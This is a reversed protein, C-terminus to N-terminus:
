LTKTATAPSVATAIRAPYWTAVTVCVLLVASCLLPLWWNLAQLSIVGSLVKNLALACFVGLVAGVATTLWNECLLELLILQKSAGLARKIGIEQQQKLAHFHANSYSSVMAVLLMLGSLIGLLTALGFENRYLLHHQEELTRVYFIEINPEVRRLVEPLQQRIQETTSTSTRIILGYGWDVSWLPAVHMLNYTFPEVESHGFFDEVVAAVPARSTRLGIASRGPFLKEALSRTLVVPSTSRGDAEIPTTPLEGEVLKLDLAEFFDPSVVYMPIDPLNTREEAEPDYINGQNGGRRLPAQNTYAVAQVGSLTRVAALQRELLDGLLPYARLDTTTPKLAVHLTQTLDLGTPSNLKTHTQEALLLSNMLLALTMTLQVILLMTVVKRRLLSKMMLNLSM